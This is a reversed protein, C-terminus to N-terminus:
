FTTFTQRPTPARLSSSCPPQVASPSFARPARASLFADGNCASIGPPTAQDIGNEVAGWASTAGAWDGAAVAADATAVLPDVIRAKDAATMLSTARLFPAWTDVYDIGSIWSDGLAVGRFNMKLTGADIAATLADALQITM